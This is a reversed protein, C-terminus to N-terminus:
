QTDKLSEIHKKIDIRKEPTVSFMQLVTTYEFRASARKGMAEYTRATELSSELTAPSVQRLRAIADNYRELRRLTRASDLLCATRQEGLDGDLADNFYGLAAEYFDGAAAVRGLKWREEATLSPDVEDARDLFSAALMYPDPPHHRDLARVANDLADRYRGTDLLLEALLTHAASREAAWEPSDYPPSEMDPAAEQVLRLAAANKGQAMALRGKLALAYPMGPETELARSAAAAAEDLHGAKVYLNGLRVYDAAQPNPQLSITQELESIARPVDGQREAALARARHIRWFHPVSVQAQELLTEAEDYDGSLILIRALEILSSIHNPNADLAARYAKEARELQLLHTSSQGLGYYIHHDRANWRLATQYAWEADTWNQNEMQINGSHYLAQAITSRGTMVVHLLTVFLMATLLTFIAATRLWSSQPAAHGTSAEKNL